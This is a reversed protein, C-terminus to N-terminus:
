SKVNEDRIKKAQELTVGRGFPLLYRKARKYESKLRFHFYYTGFKIIREDDYAEVVPRIHLKIDTLIWRGGGRSIFITISGPYLRIYTSHDPKAWTKHKSTWISPHFKYKGPNAIANSRLVISDAFDRWKKQESASLAVIEGNRTQM